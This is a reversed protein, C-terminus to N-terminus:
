FAGLQLSSRFVKVDLNDTVVRLIFTCKQLMLFFCTVGWMHGGLLSRRRINGALGLGLLDADLQWSGGGKVHKKNSGWDGRISKLTGGLGSSSRFVRLISVWEVSESATSSGSSLSSVSTSRQTPRCSRDFGAHGHSSERSLTAFQESGSLSSKESLPSLSTDTGTGSDVDFLSHLSKRPKRERNLTRVQYKLM